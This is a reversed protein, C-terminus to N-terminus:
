NLFLDLSSNVSNGTSNYAQETPLLGLISFFFESVRSSLKSYVLVHRELLLCKILVMFFEKNVQFIRKFNLSTQLRMLDINQKKELRMKNHQNSSQFMDKLLSKDEFNKQQFFAETTPQLKARIEGYLPLRSM